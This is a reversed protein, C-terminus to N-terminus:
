VYFQSYWRRLKGIPGDGDCFQPRSRYKKNEWIQIDEHFGTTLNEVYKQAFGETRELDGAIKLSVGFRLDLTGEDIPTHALMLKNELFSEMETIAYAPGYYTHTLAFNDKGGGRPYAVGRTRQTAIPGEFTATFEDVHTGHVTPFHAKDAINEVIEKPHTKVQLTNKSWPLWAETGYEAIDPIEYEPPDGTRDHFLFILGNRERIPWSRLCAKKPIKEAYPIEVCQGEGDFRWAHFACRVTNGVVEGGVALHAGLHPCYADLVRVAGDEGRFAVMEEGFYKMRKVEGAPIEDAFGIVFWGRAFGTLETDTM